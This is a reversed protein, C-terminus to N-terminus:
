QVQGSSAVLARTARWSRERPKSAEASSPPKAAQAASYGTSGIGRTAYRPGRIWRV